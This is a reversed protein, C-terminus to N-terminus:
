GAIGSILAHPALSGWPVVQKDITVVAFYNESFPDKQWKVSSASFPNKNRKTTYRRMFKPNFNYAVGQKLAATTYTSPTIKKRAHAVVNMPLLISDQFNGMAAAKEPSPAVVLGKTTYYTTVVSFSTDDMCSVIMDKSQRGSYNRQARVTDTWVRPGNDEWTTVAGYQTAWDYTPSKALNLTVTTQSAYAAASFYGNECGDTVGTSYDPSCSGFVNYDDVSEAVQPSAVAGMWWHEEDEDLYREVTSVVRQGMLDAIKLSADPADVIADMDTEPITLTLTFRGLGGSFQQERGKNQFRYRQGKVRSPTGHGMVETILNGQFRREPNDVIEAKDVLIADLPNTLRMTDYLTKDVQPWVTNLIVLSQNIADSM